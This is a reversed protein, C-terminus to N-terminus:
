RYSGYCLMCSLFCRMCAILIYMRYKSSPCLGVCRPWPVHMYKGAHAAKERLHKSRHVYIHICVVLIFRSTIPSVGLLIVVLGPHSLFSTFPAATATNATSFIIRHRVRGRRRAGELSQPEVRATDSQGCRPPPYHAWSKKRSHGLSLTSVAM